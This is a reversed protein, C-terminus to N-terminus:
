VSIPTSLNALLDEIQKEEEESFETRESNGSDHPTTLQLPPLDLTAAEVPTESMETEVENDTPLSEPIVSVDPLSPVTLEPIESVSEMNFESEAFQNAFQNEETNEEPLDLTETFSDSTEALPELTEALSEPTERAIAPEPIEPLQPSEAVPESIKEIVPEKTVSHIAPESINVASETSISQQQFLRFDPIKEKDVIGIKQATEFFRSVVQFAEGFMETMSEYLHKNENQDAAIQEGEKKTESILTQIAELSQQTSNIEQQITNTEGTIEALLGSFGDIKRNLMEVKSTLPVIKSQILAIQEEVAVIKEVFDSM